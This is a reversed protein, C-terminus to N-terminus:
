PLCVAHKTVIAVFLPACKLSWHICIRNYNITPCLSLLKRKRYNYISNSQHRTSESRTRKYETLKTHKKRSKCKRERKKRRNRKKKEKKGKKIKRDNKSKESKAKKSNKQRKKQLKGRKRACFCVNLAVVLAFTGCRAFFHNVMCKM